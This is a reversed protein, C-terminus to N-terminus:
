HETQNMHDHISRDTNGHSHKVIHSVCHNRHRRRRRVMYMCRHTHTHRHTRVHTNTPQFPQETWPLVCLIYESEAQKQRYTM